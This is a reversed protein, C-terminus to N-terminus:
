ERTGHDLALKGAKNASMKAKKGGEEYSLCHGEVKARIQWRVPYRGM